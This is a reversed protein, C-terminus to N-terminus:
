EYDHGGTVEKFVKAFELRADAIIKEHEATREYGELTLYADILDAIGDKLKKVARERMRLKWRKQDDFEIEFNDDAFYNM